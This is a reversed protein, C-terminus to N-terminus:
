ASMCAHRGATLLLAGLYLPSRYEGSVLCFWLTEHMEYLGWLSRTDHRGGPVGFLGGVRHSTRNQLSKLVQWTFRCRNWNWCIEQVRHDGLDKLDGSTKVSKGSRRFRWTKSLKSNKGDFYGSM